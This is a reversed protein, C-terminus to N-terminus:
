QVIAQSAEKMSMINNALLISDAVEQKRLAKLWKTDKMKWWNESSMCMKGIQNLM